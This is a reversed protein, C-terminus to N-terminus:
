MEWQSLSRRYPVCHFPSSKLRAAGYQHNFPMKRLAVSLDDKKSRRNRPQKQYISDEAHHFRKRSLHDSSNIDEDRLQLRLGARSFLM